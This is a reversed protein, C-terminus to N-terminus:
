QNIKRKFQKLTLITSNGPVQKLYKPSEISHLDDLLNKLESSKLNVDNSVVDRFTHYTKARKGSGSGDLYWFDLCLQISKRIPKDKPAKALYQNLVEKKLEDGKVYQIIESTIDSSPASIEHPEYSPETKKDTIIPKQERSRDLDVNTKESVVKNRVNDETPFDKSTKSIANLNSNLLSDIKLAIQNLNLDKVFLKKQIIKYQTNNFKNVATEFKEQENSYSQYKLESFELSDILRRKYISKEIQQLSEIWQNYETSDRIPEGDKLWTIPNWWVYTETIKPDVRHMYWEERIDELKIINLEVGDVYAKIEARRSEFQGPADTDKTSLLLWVSVILVIGVILFAAGKSNDFFALVGSLIRPKEKYQAVFTGNGEDDTINKSLKFGSVVYGKNPIIYRDLDRGDIKYLIDPCEKSKKGHEGASIKYFKPIEEKEPELKVYVKDELRPCFEYRGSFNTGDVNKSVIITYRQDIQEDKFQLVESRERINCERICVLFDRVVGAEDTAIIEVTKTEHIKIELVDHIENPVFYKHESVLTDSKQASVSWREGIEEGQFSVSQDSPLLKNDIKVKSDSTIKIQPNGVIKEKYDKVKIFISKTAPTLGIENISITKSNNDISVYKDGIDRWAGRMIITQYYRKSWTVEIEGKLRIKDNNVCILNGSKVAIKLGENMHNKFLLKFKPNELDIKGTLDDKSHRLANLPNESKEKLEEKVFFIQRYNGYEEQFPVNFYRVLDQTDDYYIVAADKTGSQLIEVDDDPITDLKTRYEDILLSHIAWDEKVNDLNNGVIYRQCYASFTSDILSIVDEGSLRKNNPLM